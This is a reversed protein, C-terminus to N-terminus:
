NLTAAVNKWLPLCLATKKPSLQQLKCDGRDTSPVSSDARRPLQGGGGLPQKPLAQRAVDWVGWKSPLFFTTSYSVFSPFKRVKIPTIPIESEGQRGPKAAKRVKGLQTELNEM